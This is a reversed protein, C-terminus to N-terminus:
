MSNIAEVGNSIGSFLNEVDKLTAENKMNGV